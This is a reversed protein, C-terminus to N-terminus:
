CAGGGMPNGLCSYQLPTGNGEGIKMELLHRFKGLVSFVSVSADASSSDCILVWRMHCHACEVTLEWYIIVPLSFANNEEENFYSQATDFHRYGAQIADLVCQECDEKAIQFVGFGLKPMKVGNSLYVYEM